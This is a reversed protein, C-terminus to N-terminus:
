TRYKSNTHGSKTPTNWDGRVVCDVANDIIGREFIVPYYRILWNM